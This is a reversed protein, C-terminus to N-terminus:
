ATRNSLVMSENTWGADEGFLNFHLITKTGNAFTRTFSVAPGEQDTTACDDGEYLIIDGM